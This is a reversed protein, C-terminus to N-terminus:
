SAPGAARRGPAVAVGELEVEAAGAWATARHVAPDAVAPCLLFTVGAAALRRTARAGAGAMGATAEEEAEAVHQRLHGWLCIRAVMTRAGLGIMAVQLTVM